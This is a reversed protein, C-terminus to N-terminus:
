NSEKTLRELEYIWKIVNESFGDIHTWPGYGIGNKYSAVNIMYAKDVIPKCYGRDTAQEDTIVIIRDHQVERNIAQVAKVLETGGHPQSRRLVDVGAMGRRPPCEVVQTSFSFMRVNGNILSALACAADIRTMDSKGSLKTDMSGSVDVLVATIGDLKPLREIGRLLSQDIEREFQPAARAAAVFRFPLVKEAGGKRALIAERVLGQDVNAEAMNRLNRLLAFYGLNGERILREFTEKKDAGASLNTEWTDPSPLTGDVLAKWNAAQTEDKPKPHVMFMVDRLRIDRERDYKALQYADFKQFALALGKKVQKSIPTKGNHWYLALFETLEDARQITKCITSSVYPQGRGYKALATLLLLSVHRLNHETRAEVAVSALQPVTVKASAEIIRDAITKGDEYYEDEFLLCSLVSRRLEQLATIKPFAPAGGHTRNPNPKRLANTQM